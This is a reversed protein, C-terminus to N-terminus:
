IAGDNLASNKLRNSCWFYGTFRGAVMAIHYAAKKLRFQLISQLVRAFQVGIAWFLRFISYHHRRLVLGYGNGYLWGKSISIKGTPMPHHVCKTGDYFIKAGNEVLNLVFDTEEGSGFRTGSGVGLSEDFRLDGIKKRRVFFSCSVITHWITSRDVDKKGASMWGASCAENEDTVRVSVGDVENNKFIKEVYELFDSQYWADDDPFGVVDGTAQAIGFNRAKSLGGKFEPHEKHNVVIWEFDRYTQADLSAKLKALLHPRDGMTVTILSIKMTNLRVGDDMYEM